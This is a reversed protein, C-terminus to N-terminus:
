LTLLLLLLLLRRAIDHGIQEILGLADEIEIQLRLQAVHLLNELLVAAAAALILLTCQESSHILVLHM